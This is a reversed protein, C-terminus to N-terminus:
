RGVTGPVDQVDVDLVTVEFTWAYRWGGGRAQLYPQLAELAEAEPLPLRTFALLAATDAFTLIREETIRSSTLPWALTRLAEELLSARAPRPQGTLRRRLHVHPSGVGDDELLFLRRRCVRRLDNLARHLEPQYALSWAALVADHPSVQEPLRELSGRVVQVHAPPGKAQLQALMDPSYDLATAHDVADALPLLLRGTGAGVDLLSHMGALAGRLWAATNPLAPQSGDYDAAKGEWFALDREARFRESRASFVLDRWRTFPDTAVTVEAPM